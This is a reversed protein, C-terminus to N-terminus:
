GRAIFWAAYFGVVVAVTSVIRAIKAHAGIITVVGEFFFELLFWLPAVALGAWSFKNVPALRAMLLGSGIGLIAALIVAAIAYSISRNNSSPQPKM